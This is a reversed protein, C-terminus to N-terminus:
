ESATERFVTCLSRRRAPNLPTVRKCARFKLLTSESESQLPEIFFGSIKSQTTFLSVAHSLCKGFRASVGYKIREVKGPRNKAGHTYFRDSNLFVDGRLGKKDKQEARRSWGVGVRETENRPERVQVRTATPPNIKNIGPKRRELGGRSCDM